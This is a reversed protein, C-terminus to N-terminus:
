QNFWWILIGVVAITIVTTLIIKWVSLPHDGLVEGTRANVVVQFTKGHYRYSFIWVPLLLHKFTIASYATSLHHIRQDDGGIDGRVDQRIVTEMDQKALEFGAKLDTQYREVKYGALYAPEYSKLIGQYNWPELQKLRQYDVSQTAPILVDDFTRQVKGSAPYWRTKKVQRTKQETKGDDNTETYTETVYYDEGREGRYHSITYADYTWYPLYVGQIGEPQAAKKLDNPAFWQGGLWKQIHQQGQKRDFGFPLIGNPLLTATASQPKTQLHTGCFPCNGAVQPPAFTTIAGCSPCTIELAQPALTALTDPALQLYQEYSKEEVEEARQPIRDEWGCHPCKLNSHEPNFAVNKSGCQPCAFSKIDATM